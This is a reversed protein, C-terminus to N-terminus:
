FQQFSIHIKSCPLHYDVYFSSFAHHTEFLSHEKFPLIFYSFFLTGKKHLLWPKAYNKKSNMSTSYSCDSLNSGMAILIYFMLLLLNLISPKRELSFVHYVFVSSSTLFLSPLTILFFLFSGYGFPSLIANQFFSIVPICIITFFIM